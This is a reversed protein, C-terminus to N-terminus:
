SEGESPVFMLIERFKAVQHCVFMLSERSKMAWNYICNSTNKKSCFMRAEWLFVLSCMNCVQMVTCVSKLHKNISKVHLSFM